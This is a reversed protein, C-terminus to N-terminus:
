CHFGCGQRCDPLQECVEHNCNEQCNYFWCPWKGMCKDMHENCPTCRGQDVPPDDAVAPAADDRKSTPGALVGALLAALSILTISVRM